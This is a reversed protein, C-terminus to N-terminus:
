QYSRLILFIRPINAPLLLLHIFSFSGPSTFWIDETKTHVTLDDVGNFYYGFYNNLLTTIKNTEPDLVKLSAFQKIGWVSMNGEDMGWIIKGKHYRGGNHAYLLPDSIFEFLTPPNKNLDVVLQPLFGPTLQSLYLKNQSPVYVPVEHVDDSVNFMHTYKLKPGLMELGRVKDFILFDASIEGKLTINNAVTIDRFSTTSQITSINRHFHCSVFYNTNYLWTWQLNPKHFCVLMNHICEVSPGCNTSIQGTVETQAHALNAVLLALFLLRMM